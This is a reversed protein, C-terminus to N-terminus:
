TIANCNERDM